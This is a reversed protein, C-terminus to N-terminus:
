MCIMAIHHSSSITLKDILNWETAKSPEGKSHTLDSWIMKAWIWYKFYNCITSKLRSFIKFMHGCYQLFSWFYKHPALLLMNDTETRKLRDVFDLPVMASPLIFKLVNLNCMWVLNDQSKKECMKGFNDPTAVFIPCM